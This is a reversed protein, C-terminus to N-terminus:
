PDLVLPPTQCVLLGAESYFHSNKEGQEFENGTRLETFVQRLLICGGKKETNIKLMEKETRYVGCKKASSYAYDSALVLLLYCLFVNGSTSSNELEKIFILCCIHSLIM